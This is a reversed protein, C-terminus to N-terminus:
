LVRMRKGNAVVNLKGLAFSMALDSTSEKLMASDVLGKGPQYFDVLAFDGLITVEAWASATESRVTFRRSAMIESKKQLSLNSMGCAAFIADVINQHNRVSDNMMQLTMNFVKFFSLYYVVCREVLPLPFANGLAM